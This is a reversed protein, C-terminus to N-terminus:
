CDAECPEPWLLQGLALQSAVHLSFRGRELWRELRPSQSLASSVRAYARLYIVERALGGGRWVRLAITLAQKIPTGVNSLLTVADVFSAGRHCADAALHRRALEMRRTADLLGAEHELWIARGEEDEDSLAFGAASFFNEPLRVAVRRLAHGRIEHVAIRAAEKPRLLEGSRIWVCERDVTAAAALRADVRLPITVGCQVMQRRMLNVLSSENSFDDSAIRPESQPEDELECWNAALEDAREDTDTHRGAYLRAALTRFGARGIQEVLHAEEDLEGARQALHVGLPGERNAVARAHELAARVPRLNPPRQFEFVPEAFAGSTSCAYLRAKLAQWNTPHSRALLLIQLEARVLLLVVSRLLDSM